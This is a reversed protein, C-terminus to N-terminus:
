VEEIPSNIKSYPGAMPGAVERAFRDVTDKFLRHEVSLQFNM